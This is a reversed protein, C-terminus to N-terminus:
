GGPAARVQQQGDPLTVIEVAPSASLSSASASAAAIQLIMETPSTVDFSLACGVQAADVATVM